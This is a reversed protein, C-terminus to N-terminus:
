SPGLIAVLPWLLVWSLGHHGFNPGSPGLNPWCAELIAELHGWSAGLIAEFTDLSDKSLNIESTKLLIICMQAKNICTYSPIFKYASM